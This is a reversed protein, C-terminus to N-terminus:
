KLLLPINELLHKKPVAKPVESSDLQEEQEEMKILVKKPHKQHQSSQSINTEGMTVISSMANDPLISTQQKPAGLM